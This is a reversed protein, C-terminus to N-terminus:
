KIVTHLQAILETDTGRFAARGALKSKMISALANAQSVTYAAQASEGPIKCPPRPFKNEAIWGAMVKPVVGIFEAMEDVTLYRSNTNAFSAARGANDGFGKPQFDPNQDRYRDRDRQILKQRYEPDSHYRKKRVELYRKQYDANARAAEAKSSYKRPRGIKKTAPKKKNM